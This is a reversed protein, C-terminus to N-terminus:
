RTPQTAPAAAPAPAAPTSAEEQSAVRRAITTTGAPTDIQLLRRQDNFSYTDVIVGCHLLEVRWGLPANKEPRIAQRGRAILLYGPRSLADRISLLSLALAANKEHPLAAAVLPVAAPPIAALPATPALKAPGVIRQPMTLTTQARFLIGARQGRLDRRSGDGNNISVDMSELVFAPESLYDGTRLRFKVTESAIIRGMADAPDTHYQDLEGTLAENAVAMTRHQWGTWLTEGPTAAVENLRFYASDGDATTIQHNILDDWAMKLTGRPSPAPNGALPVGADVEV